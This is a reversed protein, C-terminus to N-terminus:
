DPLYIEIYAEQWIRMHGRMETFSKAKKTMVTLMLLSEPLETFM